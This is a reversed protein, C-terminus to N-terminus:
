YIDVDVHTDEGVVHAHTGRSEALLGVLSFLLATYHHYRQGALLLVLDAVITLPAMLLLLILLLPWLLFLPVWVRHNAKDPRHVRVDIIAPPLVTSM